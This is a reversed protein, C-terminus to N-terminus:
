IESSNESESQKKVKKALRRVVNVQIGFEGDWLFGETSAVIITKGTSSLGNTEAMNVHITLAEGEMVLKVNKM